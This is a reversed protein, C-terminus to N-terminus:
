GEIKLIPPQAAQLQEIPIHCYIRKGDATEQWPPAQPGILWLRHRRTIEDAPADAQARREVVPLHQADIYDIVRQVLEQVRLDLESLAAPAPPGGAGDLLALTQQELSRAMQHLGSLGKSHLFEALSSIAVAFELLSNTAPTSMCSQWRASLADGRKKLEAYTM